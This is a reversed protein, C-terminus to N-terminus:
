INSNGRWIIYLLIGSQATSAEDEGVLSKSEATDPNESMLSFTVLLYSRTASTPAGTIGLAADM